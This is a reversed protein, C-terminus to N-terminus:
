TKRTTNERWTELGFNQTCMEDSGHTSRAGGVWEEQSYLM